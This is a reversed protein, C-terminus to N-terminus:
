ILLSNMDALVVRGNTHVDGTMKILGRTACVGSGFLIEM